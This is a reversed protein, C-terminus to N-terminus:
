LASDLVERVPGASLFVKAREPALGAAMDDIV